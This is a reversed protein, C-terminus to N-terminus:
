WPGLMAPLAGGWAVLERHRWKQSDEAPSLELALIEALWDFEYFHSMKDGKGVWFVGAWGCFDGLLLLELVRGDQM